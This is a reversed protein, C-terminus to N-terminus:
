HMMNMLMWVGEAAEDEPMSREYDRIASELKTLNGTLSFRVNFKTGHTIKKAIQKLTGSLSYALQQYTSLVDAHNSFKQHLKDHDFSTSLALEMIEVLSIFELLMKRNQVSNGSNPRNRILAERLNEHIINLEVQLKLQKEIIKPRNADTNWLDGRLKLYK